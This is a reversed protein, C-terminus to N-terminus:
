SRQAGELTVKAANGLTMRRHKAGIKYQAIFTRHKVGNASAGIRLGFGPMLEDFEIHETKGAPIVLRAVNAQKFKM